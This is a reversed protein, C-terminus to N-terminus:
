AWLGWWLKRIRCPCIYYVAKFHDISLIFRNPEPDVVAKIIVSRHISHELNIRRSIFCINTNFSVICCYETVVPVSIDVVNCNVLCWVWSWITIMVLCRSTYTTRGTSDAWSIKITWGTIDELGEVIIGRTCIYCTIGIAWAWINTTYSVFWTMCACTIVITM